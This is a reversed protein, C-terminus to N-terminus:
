QKVGYQSSWNDVLQGWLAGNGLVAQANEHLVTTQGNLDVDVIKSVFGAPTNAPVKEERLERVVLGQRNFIALVIRPGRLQPNKANPGLYINRVGRSAFAKFPVGIQDM